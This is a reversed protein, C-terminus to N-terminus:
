PTDGKISKWYKVAETIASFCKVMDLDTHHISYNDVVAFPNTSVNTLAILATTEKQDLVVCDWKWSTFTRL